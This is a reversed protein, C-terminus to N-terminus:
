VVTLTGTVTSAFDIVLKEGDALDVATGYDYYGVLPDTVYDTPTAPTDNYIVVYRFQAIAGGSAEVTADAFTVRYTSGTAVVDTTELSVDTAWGNGTAITTVDTLVGDSAPTPASNTLRFKFTDASLDHVGMGLDRAFVNFKTFSAM